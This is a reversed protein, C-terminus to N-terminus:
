KQSQSTIFFKYVLYLITGLLTLTILSAVLQFVSRLLSFAMSVGVIGVVVKGVTPLTNFWQSVQNLISKVPQSDAFGKQLIKWPQTETSPPNTDKNIDM